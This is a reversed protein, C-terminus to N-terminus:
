QYEWCRTVTQVSSQGHCRNNFESDYWSVRYITVPGPGFHDCEVHMVRWDRAKDHDDRPPAFKFEFIEARMTVDAM